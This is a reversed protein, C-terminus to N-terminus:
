RTAWEMAAALDSVMKHPISRGHEYEVAHALEHRMTDRDTQRNGTELVRIERRPPGFCEGLRDPHWPKRYRRVTWTKGCITVTRETM